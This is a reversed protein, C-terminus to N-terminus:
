KKIVLGMEKKRYLIIGLFAVPVVRLLIYKWFIRGITSLEILEGRSIKESFDFNQVPVIIKLLFKCFELVISEGLEYQEYFTDGIFYSAIFGVAIYVSVAFIATPISLVGGFACAIATIGGIMLLFIFVARIYNGLFSGHKVLLHPGDLRQFYYVKPEKLSSIFIERNQISLRATGKEDIISAPVEIDQITASMPEIPATKESVYMNNAANKKREAAPAFRDYNPRYYSIQIRTRRQGKTSIQDLYLKFRFYVKDNQSLNTPLGNFTWEFSNGPTITMSSHKATKTVTDRLNIMKLKNTSIDEGTEKKIIAVRRKIEDEVIKTTISANDPSYSRRAVLVKGSLEDKDKASFERTSYKWTVIMYIAASSLTLLILNILMIGSFKGLWIAPRSVPKSIVMHLQYTETDRGMTFCSLWVSSILLIFSVISLSYKVSVKIFGAPTGDGEVTYPLAVVSFLLILLLLQFVHSRLASKCTIKVISIFARM